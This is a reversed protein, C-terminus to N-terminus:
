LFSKLYLSFRAFNKMRHQFFLDSTFLDLSKSPSFDGVAM